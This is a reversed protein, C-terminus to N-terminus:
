NESFDGNNSYIIYGWKANKILKKIDESLESKIWSLHNWITKSTVWINLKEKIQEFTLVKDLNDYLLEFLRYPYTWKKIRWIDKWNFYVTWNTKNFVLNNKGKTFYSKEYKTMENIYENLINELQINNDIKRIAWSNNLVLIYQIQNYVPDLFTKIYNQLLSLEFYEFYDNLTKSEILGSNISILEILKEVEKDKTNIEKVIKTLQQQLQIYFNNLDFFTTTWFWINFESIVKLIKYIWSFCKILYAIQQESSINNTKM